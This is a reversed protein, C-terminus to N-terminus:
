IEQEGEAASTDFEEQDPDEELEEEDDDWDENLNPIPHSAIRTPDKFHTLHYICKSGQQSLVGM